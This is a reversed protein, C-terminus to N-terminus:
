KIDKKQFLFIGSVISGFAILMSLIIQRIPHATEVNAMLIGHGTPLLDLVWEFFTRLSGSIYNPNPTPDRMEMGEATIVMGSLFESECLRNYIISALVLLGLFCIITIVVTIARNTSLASLLTFIGALAATFLVAILVFLFFGGAGIEWVGLFPIGVLGGILWVAVFALCAVFCVVFNSLYIHTRTHGVALKNRITGDSYETGLFLAIFIACFLGIAPAFNFYYSDLSVMYGSEEMVNAQRCGNLMGAVSCILIVTISIWFIKDKKLRAFNASILKNM